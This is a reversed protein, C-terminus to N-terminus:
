ILFFGGWPHYLKATNKGTRSWGVKLEGATKFIAARTGLTRGQSQYPASCDKREFFKTQTLWRSAARLVWVPYETKNLSFMRLFFFFPMESPMGRFSHYVFIQRTVQFLSEVQCLCCAHPIRLPFVSALRQPSESGPFSGQLSRFAYRSIKFAMRTGLAPSM